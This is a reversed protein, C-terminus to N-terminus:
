RIYDMHSTHFWYLIQEAPLASLIELALANDTLNQLFIARDGDSLKAFGEIKQHTRIMLGRNSLYPAINIGSDRLTRNHSEILPRREEVAEAIGLERLIDLSNSSLMLTGLYLLDPGTIELRSPASLVTQPRKKTFFFTNRWHPSIRNEAEEAAM